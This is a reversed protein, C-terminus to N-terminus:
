ANGAYEGMDPKTLIGNEVIPIGNLLVFKVSGKVTMGEYPTYDVNQTQYAAEIRREGDRQYIVIDADSGEALLGKRPYMHYMRAPNGSMLEVLRVTTILGSCVLATYMLPVRHEVGPAGNPIKSFDDLGLSKQGAFNYSCHDTAITQIEGSSVAELIAAQDSKSRLPPSMVYKASEFGPLHYRSEDLVLYQPCTESTIKIGMLRAKRLEALGDASSLHVVHVPYDALRGIYALRSIAEAEAEVPHSKPHAAPTLEGNKKLEATKARLLDGNECHAGLLGGAKKVARLCNYIAADDIRIDYAMYVKFSTIGLAKMDQIEAEISDNWDVIEMHFRYNSSCCGEAKKMSEDYAARLTGGKEPSAFNIITTTGGMVAARTGTEFSDATTTIANKMQFHTHADIFGPFVFCGQADIVRDGPGPEISKAIRVIKKGEVAIDGKYEIDRVLTGNKIIIM